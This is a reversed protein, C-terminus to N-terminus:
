EYKRRDSSWHRLVYVRAQNRAELGERVSINGTVSCGHRFDEIAAPLRAGLGIAWIPLRENCVSDNGVWRGERVNVEGLRQANRELDRETLGKSPFWLLAYQSGLLTYCHRPAWCSGERM